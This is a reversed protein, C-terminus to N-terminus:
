IQFFFKESFVIIHVDNNACETLYGSHDVRIVCRYRRLMNENRSRGRDFNSFDKFYSGFPIQEAPDGQLCMITTFLWPLSVDPTINMSIMGSALGFLTNIVTSSIERELEVEPLVRRRPVICFPSSIQKIKLKQCLHIEICFRALVRFM